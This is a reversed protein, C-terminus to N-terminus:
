QPVQEGDKDAMRASHYSQHGNLFSTGEQSASSNGCLPHGASRGCHRACPRVCLSVISGTPIREVYRYLVRGVSRNLIPTLTHSACRGYLGFAPPLVAYWCFCAIAM